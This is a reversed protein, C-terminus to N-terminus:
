LTEALVVRPKNGGGFRETCVDDSCVTGRELSEARAVQAKTLLPVQDASGVRALPGVASNLFDIGKRRWGDRDAFAIYLVRKPVAVNAHVGRRDLLQEGTVVSQRSETRRSSRERRSVAV